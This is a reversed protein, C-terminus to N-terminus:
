KDTASVTEFRPLSNQGDSHGVYLVLTQFLVVFQLTM